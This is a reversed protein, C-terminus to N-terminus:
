SSSVVAAAVAEAEAIAAELSLTRGADRTAALQEEELAATLAALVRVRVPQDRPYQPAGLSATLGEAAGLLRAGAELQGCAAALGALGHLSSSVLL